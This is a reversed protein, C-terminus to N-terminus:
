RAPTSAVRQTALVSCRPSLKIGTSTPATASMMALSPSALRRSCRLRNVQPYEPFAPQCQPAHVGGEWDGRGLPPCLCFEGYYQTNGWGTVTCVKGDVLAQGAAPLCVPQIYETFSLVPDLPHHGGYLGPGARRQWDCVWQACVWVLMCSCM